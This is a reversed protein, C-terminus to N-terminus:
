GFPGWIWNYPEKYSVGSSLCPSSLTGPCPSSLLWSTKLWSSGCDGSDPLHSPTEGSGELPACGQQCRIESKQSGSGHFFLSRNYAVVDATIQYLLGLLPLYNRM